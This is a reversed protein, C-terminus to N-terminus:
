IYVRPVRAMVTSVIEYNITGLQKAMVDASLTRGRQSGVIVVEDGCRVGDIHGVDIITQDMCVRGVVPALHGRVLMWGASSLSRRYGDAYGIPITALVTPKETVYTEGYSVKYGAPVNKVQSVTAKLSMAPRLDLLKRDVEDSPYLGYLIIGPRVMNFYAEPMEMVAASNAAHHVPINLGSEELSQIVEKFLNLQKLASTKDLSDSSAFHTFIGTVEIAPLESIGIVASSLTNKGPNHSKEDNKLRPPVFGLRGMGTDIKIHVKIRDGYGPVNDSLEQAYNFSFVEQTINYRTLEAAYQPPTYGFILIDKTIGANRLAVAESLRAVGFIDAGCKDLLHAVQEIGHGYANAKVVAIIGTEPGIKNKIEAFNHSIASLDIEAWLPYRDAASIM